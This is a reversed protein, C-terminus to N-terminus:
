AGGLRKLEDLFLQLTAKILEEKKPLYDKLHPRIKANFAKLVQSTVDEGSARLIAEVRIHYQDGLIKQTSADGRRLSHHLDALSRALGERERVIKIRKLKNKTVPAGDVFFPKDEEYPHVIDDILRAFTLGTVVLPKDHDRSEAYVAFRPEVPDTM